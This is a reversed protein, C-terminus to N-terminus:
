NFSFKIFFHYHCEDVKEWIDLVNEASPKLKKLGLLREM